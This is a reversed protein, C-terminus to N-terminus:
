FAELLLQSLIPIFLDALPPYTYLAKLPGVSVASYLFMGKGKQDNLSVQGVINIGLLAIEVM